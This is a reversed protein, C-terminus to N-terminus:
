MYLFHKDLRKKSRRKREAKFVDVMEHGEATSQRFDRDTM